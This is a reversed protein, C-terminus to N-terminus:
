GKQALGARVRYDTWLPCSFTGKTYMHATASCKPGCQRIDLQIRQNQNLEQCAAWDHKFEQPKYDKGDTPSWSACENCRPVSPYAKEKAM